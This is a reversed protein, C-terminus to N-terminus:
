EKLQPFHTPTFEDLKVNYGIVRPTEYEDKVRNYYSAHSDLYAQIEEALHFPNIEADNGAQIKFCYTIEKM